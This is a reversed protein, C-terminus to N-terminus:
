LTFRVPSRVIIPTTLFYDQASEKFSTIVSSVYPLVFYLAVATIGGLIWFVTEQDFGNEYAAFGAIGFVLLTLPVAALHYAFCALNFLVSLVALIMFAFMAAMKKITRRLIRFGLRLM